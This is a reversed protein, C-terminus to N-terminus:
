TLRDLGCVSEVTFFPLLVHLYESLHDHIEERTDRSTRRAPFMLPDGGPRMKIQNGMEASSSSLLRVLRSLCPDRKSKDKPKHLYM